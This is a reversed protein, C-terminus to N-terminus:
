KKPDEDTKVFGFVSFKKDHEEEIKIDCTSDRALERTFSPDFNSVIDRDSLRPKFPPALKREELLKWDLTSFLPHSKIDEVGGSGLRKEPQRLLIKSLFDKAHSSSITKPFKLRDHIVSRYMDQRTDKFFPPQGSLMEFLLIGVSWWDVAKGHGLGIIIEPAIYEPTGCFTRTTSGEASGGASSVGIKSLGFDALKVHGDRDLLVNEPKLDRYVIDREHLYNLALVIEAIYFV